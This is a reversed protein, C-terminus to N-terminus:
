QCCHPQGLFFFPLFIQVCVLFLYCSLCPNYSLHTFTSYILMWTYECIAWHNWFSSFPFSSLGSVISLHQLKFNSIPSFQTWFVNMTCHLLAINECIGTTGFSIDGISWWYFYQFMCRTGAPRSNFVKSGLLLWHYDWSFLITWCM